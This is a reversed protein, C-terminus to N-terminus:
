LLKQKIVGLQVPNSIVEAVKILEDKTLKNLITAIAKLKVEADKESDAKINIEFEFSKM